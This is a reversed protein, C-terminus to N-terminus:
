TEAHRGTTLIHATHRQIGDAFLARMRPRNTGALPRDSVSMKGGFDVYFCFIVIDSLETLGLLLNRDVHMSPIPANSAPAEGAHAWTVSPAADCNETRPPVFTVQVPPETTIPYM